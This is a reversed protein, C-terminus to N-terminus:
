LDGIADLIKHKVFEDRYRLGDENLVRYEDLVIANNLNGGLAKEQARLREIDGVVADLGQLAEIAAAIVTIKAECSPRGTLEVWM